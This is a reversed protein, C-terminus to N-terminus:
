LYSAAIRNVLPTALQALNNFQYAIENAPLKWDSRRPKLPERALGGVDTIKGLHQFKAFLFSLVKHSM